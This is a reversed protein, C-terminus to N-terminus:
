KENKVLWFGYSLILHIFRCVVSVRLKGQLVAIYVLLLDTQQNLVPRVHVSHTGVSLHEERQCQTVAVHIDTVYQQRILVNVQSQILILVSLINKM